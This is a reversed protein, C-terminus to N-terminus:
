ESLGAEIMQMIKETAGRNATAFRRGAEAMALRRSEDDRLMRVASILAESNEVRMACGESVAQEAAEEFNWTHPGILAPCGAAAAEILNQGGFPLLSGGVYALDAAAYYAALEGMSDGLFVSIDAAADQPNGRRAWARGTQEIMRGVEEFRQPHRPVLVLLIDPRDLRTLADLLLAEEGDRTSAALLVFRGQFLHRLEETRQGTDAPPTVDFKLNGTIQVGHAGLEELRAGDQITQAAIGSMAALAPAVLPRVRRYGRASGESLRANVLFLPIGRRKCSLFLSPWIETEMVICCDPRTRGLFLEVLPAFDYPLYSQTVSEGFLEQGTARGTPTTHTLLIDLGPHRRRLAKVLPAAARTEGVSVAHILIRRKGSRRPGWGLRESWHRLYEPQQRARMLLHVFLFPLALVWALFYLIRM